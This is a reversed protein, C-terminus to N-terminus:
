ENRRGGWGNGDRWGEWGMIEMRSLRHIFPVVGWHCCKERWVQALANQRGSLQVHYLCAGKEKLDLVSQKEWPLSNNSLLFLLALVTCGEPPHHIFPYAQPNHTHTHRRKYMGTHSLIINTGMHKLHRCMCTVDRTHALDLWQDHCSWLLRKLGSGVRVKKWEEDCTWLGRERIKTGEEKDRKWKGRETVGKVSGVWPLNVAGVRQRVNRYLFISYRCQPGCKGQQAAELLRHLLGSAADPTFNQDAVPTIIGPLNEWM